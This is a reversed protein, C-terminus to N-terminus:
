QLFLYFVNFPLSLQSILLIIESLLFGGHKTEKLGAESVSMARDELVTFKWAPVKVDISGPYFM